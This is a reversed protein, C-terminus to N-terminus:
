YFREEAIYNDFKTIQGHFTLRVIGIPGNRQKAIIIEATGRDPSDENYVEDRYIFVILDADQEISGSERLDSMRPRKDPRQELGRNLQSLAIVPVNLEKALSKLSRSIESVETARNEKFSAVQMLQLYDIVVLGLEGQERALRRVRARLETPNLAPSSDIFLPSKRLYSISKTIEPWDGDQLKGTRVRQLDVKALSAIMRMGLQEDSMEMSFVAVPKAQRIAVNEAINMAFATKGMSPRGAIIILDSPQLGSTRDDFDKFGSPIGTISGEQQSLAEIRDLTNGLIDGLKVFGGHRGAGLHAIEFVKREAEDLLDKSQRGQTNYVSESIEQGVQLLQRLISHERVIEAYAGINATSPTHSVLQALYIHGGVTNLEQNSDLWEALTIPDCPKNDDTLTKIARFLLRHKQHYFDNETLVDAITFWAENNLMLGGLVSQEAENSFPPANVSDTTNNAMKGLSSRESM